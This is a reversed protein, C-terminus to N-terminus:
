NEFHIEGFFDPRHFDPKEITIPNWSIFHPVKLADGCKYFNAKVTKGAMSKIDHKFFVSTPVVLALEWTKEGEIEEFTDTGLSSWRSIPKLTEESALERGSRLPGAGMLVTGICNCEINYYIDDGGPQSFFEVCSDTWVSDNDNAFRARVSQETVKYHLLIGSDCYAIRFKVDPKYPYAGPWNVCGIENFEIGVSDLCQPVAAADTVAQKIFKVEMATTKEEEQKTKNMCSACLACICLM